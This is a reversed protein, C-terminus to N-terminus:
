IQEPVSLMEFVRHGKEYLELVEKPPLLQRKRYFILYYNLGELYWNKEKSFFQLVQENLSARIFSEDGGKLRYQRSFKPFEEFDIDHFGLLEGVRHLLNEPHMSFQPLALRKSHVFFVTQNHDGARGKGRHYYYDFLYFETQLLADSRYLLQSIQRRRGKRFLTFDRLLEHLSWRDEGRYQMNLQRAIQQMRYTRSDPMTTQHSAPHQDSADPIPSDADPGPERPM